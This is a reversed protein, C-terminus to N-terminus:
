KGREQASLYTHHRPRWMYWNRQSLFNWSVASLCDVQKMSQPYVNICFDLCFKQSLMQAERVLDENMMRTLKGPTLDHGPVWDAWICSNDACRKWPCSVSLFSLPYVYLGLAVKNVIHTSCRSDCPRFCKLDMGTTCRRRCAWTKPFGFWMSLRSTPRPLLVFPMLSAFYTIADPQPPWTSGDQLVSAPKSFDRRGPHVASTEGVIQFCLRGIFGKKLRFPM